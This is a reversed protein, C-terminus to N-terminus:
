PRCREFGFEAGGGCQERAGETSGDGTRTVAGLVTKVYRVPAPRHREAAHTPGVTADPHPPSSAHVRRVQVIHRESQSGKVAQLPSAPVLVGRGQHVPRTLLMLSGVAGLVVAAGVARGLVQGSRSAPQNSRPLDDREAGPPPQFDVGDHVRYIERPLRRRPTMRKDGRRRVRPRPGGFPGPRTRASGDRRATTSAGSRRRGEVRVLPRPANQGRSRGHAGESV